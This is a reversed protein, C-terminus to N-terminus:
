KYDEFYIIYSKSEDDNFIVDMLIKTNDPVFSFFLDVEQPTLKRSEKM